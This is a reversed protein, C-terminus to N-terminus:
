TGADRRRAFFRELGEAFEPADASEVLAEVEASLHAELGDMGAARDILRKMRAYAATPGEALRRAVDLAADEFGEVPLVESVLGRALAARADLRPSLLALDFAGRLGVLRPLLFTASEAGSLGTKAYAWEFAARESALV